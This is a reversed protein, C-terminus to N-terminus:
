LERIFIFLKKASEVAEQADTTIQLSSLLQSAYTMNLAESVGKLQTALDKVTELDNTSLASELEGKLENAQDVFENIYSKLTEVDIDLEESMANMDFTDNVTQEVQASENEIDDTPMSFIDDELNEKNAISFETSDTDFDIGPNDLDSEVNTPAEDILDFAFPDDQTTDSDFTAESEQDFSDQTDMLMSDLDMPIIDDHDDTATEEVIMAPKATTFTEDDMPLIDLAFDDHHVPLIDDEIEDAVPISEQITPMALDPADEGFELRNVIYYLYAIHDTLKVTDQSTNIFTLVELADEIRLNAAVGKLKHSLIQINDFDSKDLAEQLDPRFKKAQVVFDGVFEDILDSPLGLEDAAISPDYVYDSATELEVSNLFSTNSAAEAVPAKALEQTMPESDSMVDFDFDLIDNNPTEERVAQPEDSLEPMALFDDEIEPLATPEDHIDPMAIPEDFVEPVAQTEISDPAKYSPAEANEKVKPSPTQFESKPTTSSDEGVTVLETLEVAFGDEENVLYSDVKFSCEFIKSNCRISAKVSDQESHLLFDIWSFNKFNHVYGPKNEFLDAFDAVDDRLQDISYYGVQNLSDDTINVFEKRSNYILM